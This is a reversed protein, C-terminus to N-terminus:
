RRLRPAAPASSPLGPVRAPHWPRAGTRRGPSRSALHRTGGLDIARHEVQLHPAPGAGGDGVRQAQSRDREEIRRAARRVPKFQPVAAARYEKLREAVVVELSRQKIRQRTPTNSAALGRPRPQARVALRSSLRGHRPTACGPLANTQPVFPRRNLDPWESWEEGGILGLAPCGGRCAPCHYRCRADATRFLLGAPEVCGAAKLMAAQEVTEVGEAVTTKGLTASLSLITRVIALAEPDGPLRKVFSQDVKIKDIPLGGLYGLSSYGTGFDDLAIGIGLGRLRELTATAAAANKVFVGETIELDLRRPDLGSRDLAARVDAAVDSLEFQVPSVNVAVRIDGPWNIADRCATELAWRGIEVILGTEEAVAIFRAPSVQGLTQDHWRALAEVGTMRGTQPDIQPQYALSLARRSIAARLALDLTQSDALRDSMESSYHEVASGPRTRAAWLAMDAHRLLTEPDHGSTLSTTVGACAAITVRHGNPLEYPSALVQVMAACFGLLRHPEMAPALAIFSDGGLRAIGDPALGALRRAVQKLLEDGESHGLSDNIARFRRLDIAIVAIDRRTEGLAAIHEVLNTRSLTGTLPDHRALYRLRDEAIRREAGRRRVESLLAALGLTVLAGDMSATDLLWGPGIQLIAALTEAAVIGVGGMLMFAWFPLRRRLLYGAAAILLIAALAPWPGLPVPARNQLLTEAALIQLVAGPLVGYRPVVFFDRLELASAGIVIDKGAVLKPDVRGGIVDIASVRTLSQPDITYDIDLTRGPGHITGALLTAASPIRRGGLTAAYPYSRVMGASDLPVNVGVPDADALFRPLPLNEHQSGDALRPQAFAALYAYGGADALAGSFAADDAENSAASFDVDFVVRRAGLQMLANLIQADVHRPWPWVGIASLSKSDIDVFVINGTTGRTTLDFRLDRLVNDLPAAWGLLAVAALMISALAAVLLEQVTRSPRITSREGLSM